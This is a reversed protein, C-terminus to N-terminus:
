SQPTRPRPDSALLLVLGLIPTLAISGFFYGWFGLKRRVGFLAILLCLGLYIMPGLHM